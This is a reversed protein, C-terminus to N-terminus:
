MVDDAPKIRPSNKNKAQWSGTVKQTATLIGRLINVEMRDLRARQFLRRLRPMLQRPKEPDHFGIDILTEELHGFFNEVQAASAPEEDWGDDGPKLLPQVQSTMLQQALSDSAEPQMALFEQYIEYCVVQVAMAINLSPFDPNTPIQVHRHCHQLEANSLGSNERGFVIAVRGNATNVRLDPLLDKVSCVPWPLTRSRASAGVVWSCEAVAEQLSSVVRTKDLINHAGSSRRFAEESPFKHPNVLTLNELGMNKMARAVAGINGPHSTEVLVIVIQQLM